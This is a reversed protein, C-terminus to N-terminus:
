GFWRSNIEEFTGDSRMDEMMSKIREGLQDDHLRMAMLLRTQSILEDLVVYDSDVGNMIYLYMPEDILMAQASGSDLADFQESPLECWIISGLDAKFIEAKDLAEAANSGDIVCLNKGALDYLRTVKSDKPVIMVQRYEMGADVTLMTATEKQGPSPLNLYVDIIGEDLAQQVDSPSIFVYEAEVNLRSAMENGLDVSYGNPEGQHDYAIPLNDSEVGFVIVDEALIRQLSDSYQGCGSLLAASLAIVALFIVLLISRKNNMCRNIM